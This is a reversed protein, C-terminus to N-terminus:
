GIWVALELKATRGREPRIYSRVFSNPFAKEPHGVLRKWEKKRKERHECLLM